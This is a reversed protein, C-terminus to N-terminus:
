QTKLMWCNGDETELESGESQHAYSVTYLRLIQTLVHKMWNKVVYKQNKKHWKTDIDIWACYNCEALQLDIREDSSGLM